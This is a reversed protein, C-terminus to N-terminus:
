NSFTGVAPNARSNVAEKRVCKSSDSAGECVLSLLAAAAVEDVVAVDGGALCFTHFLMKLFRSLLSSILLLVLALALALPLPLLSPFILFRELVIFAETLLEAAVRLGNTSCAVTTLDDFM